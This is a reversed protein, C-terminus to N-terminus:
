KVHQDNSATALLHTDVPNISVCGIKAKSLQYSRARSKDERMDLHTLWGESDTLWMVYGAPDLDFSSPLDGDFSYVERSIGATFSMERITCDYSSTYM